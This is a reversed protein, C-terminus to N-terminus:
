LNFFCFPSSLSLARLDVCCTCHYRLRHYSSNQMVGKCCWCWAFPSM